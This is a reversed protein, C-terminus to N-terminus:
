DKKKPTCKKCVIKNTSDTVFQKLCKICIKKYKLNGIPKFTYYSAM